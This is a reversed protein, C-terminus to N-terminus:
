GRHNLMQVNTHHGACNFFHAIEIPVFFFAAADPDLHDLGEVEQSM